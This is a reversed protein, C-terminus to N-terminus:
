KKIILADANYLFRFAITNNLTEDDMFGSIEIGYYIIIKIFLALIFMVALWTVVSLAAGAASDGKGDSTMDKGRFVVSFVINIIIMFILASVVFVIIKTFNYIQKDIYNDTIYAASDGGETFMISLVKFTENKDAANLSEFYKGACPPLEESLKNQFSETIIKQIKELCDAESVKDGVGSTANILEHFKKDMDTELSLVAKIKQESVSDMFTLEKYAAKMESVTDFGNVSSEVSSLVSDKIYNDYIMDTMMGTLLFSLIIGVANFAFQIISKSIGKKVGQIIFAALFVLAAADYYWCVNSM